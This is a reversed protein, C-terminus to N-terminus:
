YIYTIIAIYLMIITYFTLVIIFSPLVCAINAIYIAIFSFLIIFVFSIFGLVLTRKKIYFKIENDEAMQKEEEDIEIM